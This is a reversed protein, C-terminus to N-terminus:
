SSDLRLGEDIEGARVILTRLATAVQAQEQPSMRDALAEMWGLRAQLIEQLWRQGEPTLVIQKVRRDHPDESRTVLGQLVLRDLMQSAAGNTVGLDDGVDSVGSVGRRHIHLMAGIQSMSLGREKAYLLVHRMSGRMFVAACEQLIESLPSRTEM